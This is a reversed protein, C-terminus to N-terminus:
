RFLSVLVGIASVIIFFAVIKLSIWSAFILKLLSLTPFFIILSVHTAALVVLLTAIWLLIKLFLNM